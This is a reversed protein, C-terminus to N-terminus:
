NGRYIFLKETRTKSKSTGLMYKHEKEWICEWNESPADNESLLIINGNQYWEKCKEWLDNHNFKGIQNYQRTGKYPPDLYIVCNHINLNKFDSTAFTINKFQENKSQALLNRYRENNLDRDPAIERNGYGDWFKGCFSAIFGVYGIYWNIEGNLFREKTKKWEDRDIYIYEQENNKFHNLLEILNANIDFGYKKDWVIKDILNAGGVFPEVYAMGDKLYSQIIPALYKSLRNKSGQYVM